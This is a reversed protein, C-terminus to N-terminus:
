CWWSDIWGCVFRLMLIFNTLKWFFSFIKWIKFRSYFMLTQIQYKYKLNHKLKDDETGDEGGARGVGEEDSLREHGDLGQSVVHVWGSDVVELSHVNANQNSTSQSKEVQRTM